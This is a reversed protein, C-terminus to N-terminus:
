GRIRRVIDVCTNFFHQQDILCLVIGVGKEVMPKVDEPTFVNDMLVIGTKKSLAVVKDYAKVLYPHQKGKEGSEAGISAGIDGKGVGIADVGPTLEAFIEEANEIGNKDELLPILMTNQNSYRMYEKFGPGSFNASRISPCIGCKGEPPYRLAEVARRADQATEIHPVVVGQAGAEMAQRILSENTETVRVITTIGAADAARICHEMTEVTLRSHEMDLMYFDFGAYALIEIMSPNGTYVQMGLPTEGKKLASLIRNERPRFTM